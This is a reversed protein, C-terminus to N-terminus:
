PMWFLLQLACPLCVLAQLLLQSCTVETSCQQLSLTQWFFLMMQRSCCMAKEACCMHKTITSTHTTTTTTKIDFVMCAKLQLKCHLQELVLIGTKQLRLCGRAIVDQLAWCCSRCPDQMGPAFSFGSRSGPCVSCAEIAPSLCNGAYSPLWTVARSHHPQWISNVLESCKAGVNACAVGLVARATSVLM